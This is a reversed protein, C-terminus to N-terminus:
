HICSRIYTDCLDCCSTRFRATETVHVGVRVRVLKDPKHDDSLGITRGAVCM